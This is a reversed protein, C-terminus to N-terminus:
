DPFYRKSEKERDVSRRKIIEHETKIDEKEREIIEIKEKVEEVHDEIEKIKEEDSILFKSIIFRIIVFAVGAIMLYKVAYKWMVALVTKIKSWIVKWYLKM